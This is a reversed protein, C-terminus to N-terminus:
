YRFSLTNFVEVVLRYGPKYHNAFGYNSNPEVKFHKKESPVYVELYKNYTRTVKYWRYNLNLENTYPGRGVINFHGQVYVTILPEPCDTLTSLAKLHKKITDVKRFENEVIITQRM